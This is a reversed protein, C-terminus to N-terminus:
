DPGGMIFRHLSIRRRTEHPGIWASAYWRHGDKLACWKHRGVREYDADDVLAFLGRSIAVRKM